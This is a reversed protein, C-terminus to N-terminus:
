GPLIIRLLLGALVGGSPIGGSADANIIRSQIELQLAGSGPIRRCLRNAGYPLEGRVVSVIWPHFFKLLGSSVILM